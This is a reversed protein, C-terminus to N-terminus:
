SYCNKIHHKIEKLIPREKHPKIKPVRFYGRGAGRVRYIYVDLNAKARERESKSYFSTHFYNNLKDLNKLMSKKLSSTFDKANLPIKLKDYYKEKTEEWSDPLDYSPNCFLSTKEVWFEKCRIMDDLKKLVCLEFEHKKIKGEELCLEKWHGKLLNTPIDENDPYYTNKKDLYKKVLQVANMLDDFSKNNSNINLIKLIPKLLSRYSSKYKSVMVNIKEVDYENNNTETYNAELEKFVELSVKPFIVDKITGSPEEVIAFTLTKLIINKNYVKKINKTVSKELLKKTRNEIRKYLSLLMKVLNDGLEKEKMYFYASLLSYRIKPPHRRLQWANESRVQNIMHELVKNSLTDFLNHNINLSQLYKLKEIESYISKKNIGKSGQAVWDFSHEESNKKTLNKEINDRTDKSLDKYINDYLSNYYKKHISNILDVIRKEPPLEVRLEHCKSIFSQMLKNKSPDLSIMELVYEKLYNYHTINFSKYSFMNRLKSIYRNFSRGRWKFDSFLKDDLGLHESIYKVLSLPIESKNKPFYGLYLYTKLLIAFGLKNKENGIKNILNLEDITINFHNKNENDKSLDKPLRPYM